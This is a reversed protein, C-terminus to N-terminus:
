PAGFVTTQSKHNQYTQIRNRRWRPRSNMGSSSPLMRSMGTVTGRAETVPYRVIQLARHAAEHTRSTSIDPFRSPRIRRRILGSSMILRHDVRGRWSQNACFGNSAHTPRAAYRIRELLREPERQTV